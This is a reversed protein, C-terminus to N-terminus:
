VEIIKALKGSGFRVKLNSMTNIGFKSLYRKPGVGSLMLIKPSNLSGASVIVEKRATAITVSSGDLYEVGYARRDADILVRLVQAQTRITLNKRKQRIPRIYAANTSMRMGERQTMQLQMVGLQSDGANM